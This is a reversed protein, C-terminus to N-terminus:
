YKTKASIEDTPTCCEHPHASDLHNVFKAVVDINAFLSERLEYDVKVITRNSSREIVFKQTEASRVNNIMYFNTMKKKIEADTMQELSAGPDVLEKLAAIVYRNEAYMPVIRFAFIGCFSAILLVMVLNILGMGRQQKILKM